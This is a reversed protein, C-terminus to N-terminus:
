HDQILFRKLDTLPTSCLPHRQPKLRIGELIFFRSERGRNPTLHDLHLAPGLAVIGPLTV